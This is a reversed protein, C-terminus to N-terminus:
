TCLLVIRPDQPLNIELKRHVMTNIDVTSTYAQVEVLLPPHERQEGTVQTVSRLGESLHLIFLEFHNQNVHGLHSLIKFM